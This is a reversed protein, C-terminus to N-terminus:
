GHPKKPASKAVGDFYATLMEEINVLANLRRLELLAGLETEETFSGHEDKELGWFALL